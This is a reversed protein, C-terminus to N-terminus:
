ILGALLVAERAQALAIRASRIAASRDASDPTNNLIAVIFAEAGENLYHIRMIAEQIPAEPLFIVKHVNEKTVPGGM